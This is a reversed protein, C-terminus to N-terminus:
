KVGGARRIPNLGYNDALEADEHTIMVCNGDMLTAGASIVRNYEGLYTTSEGGASVAYSVSWSGLTESAIGSHGEKNSLLHAIYWCIAEAASSDPLGPADQKTRECAIDYLTDSATQDAPMSYPTIMPMLATIQEKTATM